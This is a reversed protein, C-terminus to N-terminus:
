APSVNDVSYVMERAIFDAGALSLKGASKYHPLYLHTLYDM